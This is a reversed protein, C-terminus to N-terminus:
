YKPHHFPSIIRHLWVPPWMSYIQSIINLAFRKLCESMYPFHGLLHQMNYMIQKRSHVTNDEPIYLWTIQYFYLLTKSSYVAEMKLSLSYALLIGALLLHCVATQQHNCAWSIKQGQFYPLEHRPFMLPSRSSQLDNCGFLYNSKMTVATLIQFGCNRSTWLFSM